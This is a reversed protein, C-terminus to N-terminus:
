HGGGAPGTAATGPAGRCQDTCTNAACATLAIACSPASTGGCTNLPGFPSCSGAGAVVACTTPGTVCGHGAGCTPACTPNCTNSCTVGFFGSGVALVEEAARTDPPGLPDLYKF